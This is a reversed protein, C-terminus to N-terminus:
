DTESQMHNPVVLLPLPGSFFVLIIFNNAGQLRCKPQGKYPASNTLRTLHVIPLGFSFNEVGVRWEAKRSQSM